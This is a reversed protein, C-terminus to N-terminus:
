VSGSGLSGLSITEQCSGRKPRSNLRLRIFLSYLAMDAIGKFCPFNRVPRMPRPKSPNWFRVSASSWGLPIVSSSLTSPPPKGRPDTTSNHPVAEDPRVLRANEKSASAVSRCSAHAKTSTESERSGIERAAAPTSRERRSHIRQPSVPFRSGSRM